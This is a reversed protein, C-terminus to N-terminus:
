SPEISGSVACRSRTHPSGSANDTFALQATRLGAGRPTMAIEATCSGSAPVSQGTCGDSGVTFDAANAGSLASGTISLPADGTNTITV